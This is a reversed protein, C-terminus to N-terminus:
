GPNKGPCTTSCDAASDAGGALCQARCKWNPAVMLFGDIWAVLDREPRAGLRAAKEYRGDVVYLAGPEYQGSKLAHIARGSAANRKAIDVRALYVADTSMDHMAAFYAFDDYHPGM